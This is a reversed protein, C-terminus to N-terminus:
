RLVDLVLNINYWSFQALYSTKVSLSWAEGTKFYTHIYIYIIIIVSNILIINIFVIDVIIISINYLQYM